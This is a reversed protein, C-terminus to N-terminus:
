AIILARGHHEVNTLQRPMSTKRKDAVSRKSGQTDEWILASYSESSTLARPCSYSIIKRGTVHDQAQCFPYSLGWSQCSRNSQHSFVRRYGSWQEPGDELL